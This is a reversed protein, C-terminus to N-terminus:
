LMSVCAPWPMRRHARVKSSCAPSESRTLGGRGRGGGGGCGHRRVSRRNRGRSAAPLAVPLLSRPSHVAPRHDQGPMLPIDRAFRKVSGAKGFVYCMYRRHSNLPTIHHTDGAGHRASVPLQLEHPGLRGRHGSQTCAARCAFSRHGLRSQPCVAAVTVPGRPRNVHLLWPSQVSELSCARPM